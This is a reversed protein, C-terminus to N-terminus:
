LSFGLLSRLFFLSYRLFICLLRRRLLENGLVDINFILSICWSYMCLQGASCSIHVSEIYSRLVQMAFYQDVHFSPIKHKSPWHWNMLERGELPKLWASEGPFGKAYGFLQLKLSNVKRGLGKYVSACPVVDRLHLPGPGSRLCRLIPRPQSSVM